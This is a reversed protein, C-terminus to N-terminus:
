RPAAAAVAAGMVAVAVGLLGTTIPRWADQAGLSATGFAAYAAILVGAAACGIAINRM